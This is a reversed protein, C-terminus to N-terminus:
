FQEIIALNPILRINYDKLYNKHNVNLNLIVLDHFMSYFCIIHILSNGKDVKEFYTGLLELEKKAKFQGTDLM